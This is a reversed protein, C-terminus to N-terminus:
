EPEPAYYARRGIITYEPHGRVEIDIKRKKGDHEKNTPYYGVIYRRNIDSFIHSYIESSQFPDELFEMWGGTITSLEKLASQEKIIADFLKDNARELLKPFGKSLLPFGSESLSLEVPQLKAALSAKIREMQKDQPLGIIRLGPMVTYITARSKLAANYVDAISFSRAGMKVLRSSDSPLPPLILLEDGDTQFIIIPRMDEADFAEKLVALLASYQLSHGTDWGSKAASEQAKKNLSELKSKLASKDKTFNSLLKIEDTVIAMRDKPGLQDVLTKAAEVSMNIFSSLSGSYDIILVISRPIESDGLSFMGVQQPIGDENVLFDNQTLGQVPHGGKDLVLFDGVVLATEVRIMDVDSNSKDSKEKDDFAKIEVSANRKSDWKIRKLSSGFHKLKPEERDTSQAITSFSLFACGLLFMFPRLVSDMCSKDLM